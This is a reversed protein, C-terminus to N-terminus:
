PGLLWKVGGGGAPDTHQIAGKDLRYLTDYAGGRVNGVDNPEFYTARNAFTDAGSKAFPTSGLSENDGIIDAILAGITYDATNNFFANHGYYSLAAASGDKIGAGGAGSFGEILNNLILVNFHAANDEVSIATGTGAASLFSNQHCFISRDHVWVGVSAGDISFICRHVHHGATSNCVVANTFDRTGDNKFYCSEVIEVDRCGEDADHFHCGLAACNGGTTNFCKASTNNFEVNRATSAVSVTVLNAAGSNHIHLDILHIHSNSAVFMTVSNCDIGGIGGDNAATTYGRITLPAPGTPSGYTALTLAAALIEDTGAKVNVQDGNTADRTISNLAFQLDGYPDGITGTGTNAAISPDCYHNTSSAM